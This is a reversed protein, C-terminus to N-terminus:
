GLVDAYAADLAARLDNYNAQTEDRRNPWDQDLAANLRAMSNVFKTRQEELAPLHEHLKNVVDQGLTSARTELEHRRQDFDQLGARMAAFFAQRQSAKYESTTAYNGMSDRATPRPEPSACGAALCSMALASVVLVNNM